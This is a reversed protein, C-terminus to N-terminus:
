FIKVLSRQGIAVAEDFNLLKWEIRQVEEVSVKEVGLIPLCEDLLDRSVNYYVQCCDKEYGSRNMRDAIGKLVVEMNLKEM